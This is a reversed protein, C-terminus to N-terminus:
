LCRWVCRLLRRGDPRDLTGGAVGGRGLPSVGRDRKLPPRLGVRRRSRRGLQARVPLQLVPESPPREVDTASGRSRHFHLVIADGRSTPRDLELLAPASRRLTLPDASSAARAASGREVPRPAASTVRRRDSSHGLGIVRRRWDRRCLAPRSGEALSTPRRRPTRPSRADDRCWPSAWREDVLLLRDDVDQTGFRVDGMELDLLRSNTSRWRCASAAPVHLARGILGRARHEGSGTGARRLTRERNAGAMHPRFGCGALHRSRRVRALPVPAGRYGDAVLAELIGGHGDLIPLERVDDDWEAARVRLGLVGNQAVRSVLERRRRRRTRARAGVLLSTLVLLGLGGRGGSSISVYCVKGMMLASFVAVTVCCVQHTAEIADHSLPCAAGAAWLLPLFCIGHVAGSLGGVVGGLMLMRADVGVSAMMPLMANLAGILSALGVTRAVASQFTRSRMAVQGLGAAALTNTVWQLRVYGPGFREVQLGLTTAVLQAHAGVAGGIASIVGFTVSVATPASM